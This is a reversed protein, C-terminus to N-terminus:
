FNKILKLLNTGTIYIKAKLKKMKHFQVQPVQVMPAQGLMEVAKEPSEALIRYTLIVPAMVELKVTYYQPTISKKDEPKM